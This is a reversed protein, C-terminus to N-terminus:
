FWCKTAKNQATAKKEVRLPLQFVVFYIILLNDLYVSIVAFDMNGLLIETDHGFESFNRVKLYFFFFFIENICRRARWLSLFIHSLNQEMM